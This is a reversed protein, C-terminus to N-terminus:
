KESTTNLSRASTTTGACRTASLLSRLRATPVTSAAPPVSIALPM